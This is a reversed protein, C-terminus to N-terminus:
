NERAAGLRPSRRGLLQELADFDVPKALHADFGAEAAREKDDRRSFGTLAVLYVDNNERSQRVQCAVQYGDFVPLGIDVLAVDPTQLEIMEIGRLGDGATEVHYGDLELLRQLTSRAIEDDEVILIRLKVAARSPPCTGSDPREAFPDSPHEARRTSLQPQM